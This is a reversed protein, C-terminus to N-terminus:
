TYGVNHSRHNTLTKKILLLENVFGFRFFIKVFSFITQFWWIKEEIEEIKNELEDNSVNEIYQFSFIIFDM